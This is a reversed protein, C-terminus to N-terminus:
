VPAETPGYVLIVREALELATTLGEIAVANAGAKRVRTVAERDPVRAFIQLHPFSRRAVSTVEEVLDVDPLAVVLAAARDLRAARLIDLRTADGYFVPLRRTRSAVVQKPHLDLVIIPVHQAYLHRAVAKGVQGFGAVVVHGVLEGGETELKGLMSPSAGARNRWLFTVLTSGAATVAMSAGITVVLLQAQERELIGLGAALALIVFAFESGQSLIAGLPFARERPIGFALALGALVTAKIAMLGAVLLAILAAQDWALALDLSMGVTIFFLGLLLGRFPLMDAAVQHRYETDAVMLGALFAGLAMSLGALETMWGTGIVLLLTVGTFVEPASTSAAFRLLRRLVTREIALILAIVVLSKVAALGLAAGLGGDGKAAVSAFVLLPGVAIDQVLLIPLVIRGLAGSMPSREALLQLVVATSSLALAAGVLAAVILPLGFLLAAQGLVLTTAIVQAIGLAFVRAGFLRFREFKLELGVAFLLFVVGFEGLHEAAAVNSILSLGFPGIAVGAVLYALITSIHIRQFLPVFILVALLLVLFDKLFLEETAM